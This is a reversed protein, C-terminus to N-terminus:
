WDNRMCGVGWVCLKSELRSTQGSACYLQEKTTWRAYVLRGHDVMASGCVLHLISSIITIGM